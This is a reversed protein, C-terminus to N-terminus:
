NLYYTKLIAEMEAVYERKQFSPAYVYSFLTILRGKEEDIVTYSLFPGGMKLGKVMRWLGRIEVTYKGNIERIVSEPTVYDQATQMYSGEIEGNVVHKLLSDLNNLIYPAKLQEESYYNQAICVVGESIQHTFGGKNREKELRVWFTSDTKKALQAENPFVMHIGFDANLTKTLQKNSYNNIQSQKFEIDKSHYFQQIEASLKTFEAIATKTSSATFSTIYQDNAWKNKFRKTEKAGETHDFILINRFSKFHSKFDKERIVTVDMMKEKQPLGYQPLEIHAKLSDEMAKLDLKEDVVALVLGYEKTSSRLVDDKGECSYLFNLALILLVSISSSIIRTM